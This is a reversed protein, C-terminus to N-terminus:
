LKNVYWRMQMSWGFAVYLSAIDLTAYLQQPFKHRDSATLLMRFRFFNQNSNNNKKQIKNQFINILPFMFHFRIQRKEEREHCTAHVHTPLINSNNLQKVQSFHYFM